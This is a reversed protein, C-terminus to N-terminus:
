RWCVGCNACTIGSEKGGPAEQACANSPLLELPTKRVDRTLFTLDTTGKAPQKGPSTTDLWAVKVRKPLESPAPLGTEEDASYWLRLNTQLALDALSQKLKPIRWSRTYAYFRTNPSRELIENWKAVYGPSYFDGAVHIRVLLAGRRFIEDAMRAAFNSDKSQALRWALAKQVTAGLFRGVTAYCVSSCIGSKGPCTKLAPISWTHITDGLKTNGTGLLFRTKPTM